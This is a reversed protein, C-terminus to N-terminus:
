AEEEFWNIEIGRMVHSMIQVTRHAVGDRYLGSKAIDITDANIKLCHHVKGEFEFWGQQLPKPLM